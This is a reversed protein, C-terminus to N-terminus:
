HDLLIITSYHLLLLIFKYLIQQLDLPLNNLSFKISGKSKKCLLADIKKIKDDANLESPLFKELEDDNEINNLENILKSLKILSLM